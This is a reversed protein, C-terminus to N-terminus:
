RFVGGAEKESSEELNFGNGDVAPEGNVPQLLQDDHASRDPLGVGGESIHVDDVPISM